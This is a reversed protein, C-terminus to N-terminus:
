ARGAYEVIISGPGLLQEVKAVLEPVPEVGLAPAKLVVEQEALLVHLFLPTRGRHAECIARVAGLLAEGGDGGAEGKVRIRCTHAHRGRGGNGGNGGNGNPRYGGETTLADELPKIDEVLVVRGKDTEDIRGKVVVPGPAHLSAACAKLAEPFITLSVSGDVADLAAFAMRNGSKTARERVQSLQGLLAVRSGVPRSAVDAAAATGLERARDRYRELPHGSIYFGLVEKEYALLQETPWEPVAPLVPAPAAGPASSAGGLADFLSTQGEERDRQRRQGAEMAQDLSGLLGARTGGFGDCAGAKILSELVRRNLLRLDVRACFDTLSGFAGTDQRLRVISDIASEGVNKIAALGFRLVPGEVTFRAGSRNVDPPAIALGMARSEEMYQVIKDTRDMESTLLAAMFEVPYNAKLYATQYAVVGYCAAHSNHVAIGNALFSQAVPVEFDYTPEEGERVYSRPRSWGTPENALADLVPSELRQAVHHLTDRRIGGKGEDTFMLRYAIGLARCGAKLSPFSKAITDRLAVRCVALPVVDVTGRALLAGLGAYRGLLAELQGRKAPLLHPGAMEAFRLFASRGGVLNVTYGARHGGRYRFSKRHVTSPMELKLLLRRVDDALGASSTAYYISLTPAHVCGDGQFLAAVLVSLSEENWRDVLLPVRKELAGKGQLGCEEFLFQVAGSPVSRDIRAPRVSGARGSERHEVRAITNPFASVARAMGELEESSSSYLYFHSDYGLSGESLAYGLLAAKYGPVADPGAPLSRAMAVYDGAALEEANVWGRQTFIPHDPTCRVHMGNALTLRGVPRVGSPRVGLARFPGDKTLVRDGARVETIPKRTGDAM